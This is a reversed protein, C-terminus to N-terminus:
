TPSTKAYTVNRTRPCEVKVCQFGGYTNICLRDRTCNNQRTACEDIDAHLILHFRAYVFSIDLNVYLNRIAVRLTQSVEAAEATETWKTALQARVAIVVRPTLALMFVCVVQRATISCKVSM